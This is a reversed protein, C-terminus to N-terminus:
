DYRYICSLDQVVDHAGMVQFALDPFRLRLDLLVVLRDQEGIVLHVQEVLDDLLRALGEIQLRHQVPRQDADTPGHV